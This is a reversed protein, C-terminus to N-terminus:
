LWSSIDLMCFTIIPCLLEVKHSESTSAGFFYNVHIEPLPLLPTATPTPLNPPHSNPAQSALPVLSIRPLVRRVPPWVRIQGSKLNKAYVIVCGRSIPMVLRIPCCAVSAVTWYSCWIGCAVGCCLFLALRAVGGGFLCRALLLM